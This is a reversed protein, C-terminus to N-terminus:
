RYRALHATIAANFPEAKELNCLHAAGEILVCQSKPVAEHM